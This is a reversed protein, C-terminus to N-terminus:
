NGAPAPKMVMNTAGPPVLDIVILRAPWTGTARGEHWQAVVEAFVQGAHFDAAEGTDHNTVRLSGKEVYVFRSWPHQHLSTVGGAPIDVAAAIMEAPGRPLRLPQGSVTTATRVIPTAVAQGMPKAGMTTPGTGPAAVPQSGSITACGATVLGVIVLYKRM